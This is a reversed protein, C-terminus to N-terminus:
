LGIDDRRLAPGRACVMRPGFTPVPVSDPWPEASIVAEHHCVSCAVELSRVGNRRMNGLTTPVIPYAKQKM